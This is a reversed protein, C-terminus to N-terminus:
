RFDLPAQMTSADFVTSTHWPLTNVDKTVVVNNPVDLTAVLEVTVLEVDLLTVLESLIVFEVARLTVLGGEVVDAITVAAIIRSVILTAFIVIECHRHELECTALLNPTKYAVSTKTTEHAETDVVV